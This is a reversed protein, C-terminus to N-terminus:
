NLLIAPREEGRHGTRPQARHEEGECEQLLLHAVPACVRSERVRIRRCGCAPDTVRLLVFYLVAIMIFVHCAMSTIIGHRVNYLDTSLKNRYKIVFQKYFFPCLWFAILWSIFRFPRLFLNEKQSICSRFYM